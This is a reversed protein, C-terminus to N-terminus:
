GVGGGDHRGPTLSPLGLAKPRSSDRAQSGYRGGDLRALLVDSAAQPTPKHELPGRRGTGWASGTPRPSGGSCPLQAAIWLRYFRRDTNKGACGVTPHCFAYRIEGCSSCLRQETACDVSSEPPADYHAILWFSTLSLGCVEGISASPRSKINLISFLQM